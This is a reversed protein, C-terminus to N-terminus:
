EPSMALSGEVGETAVQVEEDGEKALASGSRSKDSIHGLQTRIMNRNKKNKALLKAQM